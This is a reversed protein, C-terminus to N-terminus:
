GTWRFDRHYLANNTLHKRSKTRGSNEKGAFDGGPLKGLGLNLSYVRGKQIVGRCGEKYQFDMHLSKTDGSPTGKKTHKDKSVM